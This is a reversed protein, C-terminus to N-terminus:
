SITVFQLGVFIIFIILILNHHLGLLKTCFVLIFQDNKIHVFSKYGGLKLVTNRITKFRGEFEFKLPCFNWHPESRVSLIHELLQYLPVLYNDECSALLLISVVDQVVDVRGVADELLAQVALVADLDLVEVYLIKVDNQIALTGVHADDVIWDQWKGEVEVVAHRDVGVNAIFFVIFLEEKEVTEEFFSCLRFVNTDVDALRELESM